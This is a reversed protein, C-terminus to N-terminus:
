ADVITSELENAQFSLWLLPAKGSKGSELVESSATMSSLRVPYFVFAGWAGSKPRAVFRLRTTLYKHFEPPSRRM